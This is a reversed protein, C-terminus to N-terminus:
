GASRPHGLIGSTRDIVTEALEPLFGTVGESWRKGVMSMPVLVVDGPQGHLALDTGWVDSVVVWRLPLRARLHEGFGAGVRNIVLNPDERTAQDASLWRAYAADYYSGLSPMDVPDIGQEVLEALLQNLWATESDRLEEIRQDM